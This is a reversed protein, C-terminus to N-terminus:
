SARTFYGYPEQMGIYAKSLRPSSTGGWETLASGCAKIKNQIYNGTSSIWSERIVESCDAERM